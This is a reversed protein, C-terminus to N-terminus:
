LDQYITQSYKLSWSNSVNATEIYYEQEDTLNDPDQYWSLHRALYPAGTRIASLFNEYVKYSYPRYLAFTTDINAKYLGASIEDAWYKEEWKVVAEKAPYHNPIDDIRLGFGAKTVEPHHNLVEIFKAMFDDPCNEDPVVDADTVAYYGKSFKKSIAPSSWLVMHGYNRELRIVNVDTGAYFDLLPPYDSNNDLIHINHYGNKKLWTILQIVTNLQNFNIIIVPIEKPANLQAKILASKRHKRALVADRVANYNKAKKLKGRLLNVPHLMNKNIGMLYKDPSVPFSTKRNDNGEILNLLRGIANLKKASVFATGRPFAIHLQREFFYLFSRYQDNLSFPRTHPEYVDSANHYVGLDKACDILQQNNLTRLTKSYIVIWEELFKSWHGVTKSDDHMRFRSLTQKVYRMNCNLAFRIFLDVDLCYHFKPNLYGYDDILRKRFFSSPQSYPFQGLQKARFDSIDIQNTYNSQSTFFLCDGFVFDLSPTDGFMTGITLLANTEYLDDSNLWTIIDGTAKEFGKNIAEAQGSDKESVWYAIHQEYKKIVEVSDDTSGGDIIIFELDPYNQNIVSLITEELFKGQNYSPTIVSIKPYKSDM